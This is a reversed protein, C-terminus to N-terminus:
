GGLNRTSRVVRVGGGCDYEYASRPVEGVYPEEDPEDQQKRLARLREAEAAKSREQQKKRLIEMEKAM